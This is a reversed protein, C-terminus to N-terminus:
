VKSMVKVGVLLSGNKSLKLSQGIHIYKRRIDYYVFTLLGRTQTIHTVYIWYGQGSM